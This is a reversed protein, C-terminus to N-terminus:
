LQTLVNSPLKNRLLNIQLLKTHIEDQNKPLNLTATKMDKLMQNKPPGFKSICEPFHLLLHFKACDCLNPFSEKLMEMLKIISEKASTECEEKDSLSWYCDLNLWADFCLLAELCSVVDEMRTRKPLGEKICDWGDNHM